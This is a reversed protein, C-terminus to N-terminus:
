NTEKCIRVQTARVAVLQEQLVNMQSAVHLITVLGNDAVDAVQIEHALCLQLDVYRINVHFQAGEFTGVARLGEGALVIEAGVHVHVIFLLTSKLAGGAVISARGVQCQAFVVVRAVHPSVIGVLTM